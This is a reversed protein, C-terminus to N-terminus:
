DYYMFACGSCNECCFDKEIHFFSGKGDCLLCDKDIEDECDICPTKPTWTEFDEKCNKCKNM